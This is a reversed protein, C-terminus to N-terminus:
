ESMQNTITQDEDDSSSTVEDQATAKTSNVEDRTQDFSKELLPAPSALVEFQNSTLIASSSSQQKNSRTQPANLTVQKKGKGKGKNKGKKAPGAAEPEAMQDATRKTPPPGPTLTISPLIYDPSLILFTPVLKELGVGKAYTSESRLFDKSLYHGFRRVAEVYTFPDVKGSPFKVKLCPRPLYNTVFVKYDPNAAQHCIAIQKLIRVRVRTAFTHSINISIKTLAAPLAPGTQGSRRGKFFAGFAERAKASIEISKMEVDYTATSTAKSKFQRV